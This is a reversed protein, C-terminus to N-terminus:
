TGIQIGDLASRAVDILGLILTKPLYFFKKDSNGIRTYNTFQIKSDVLCNHVLGCRLVYYIVDEIGVYGFDDKKIDIDTILKIRISSATIGPFGKECIRRFNKQLFLRFRDGVKRYAPYTKLSIADIACCVLCLAEDYHHNVLLIESASM